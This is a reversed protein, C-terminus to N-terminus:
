VAGRLGPVTARPAAVADSCVYSLIKLAPRFPRRAPRKGARYRVERLGPGHNDPVPRLTASLQGHDSAGVTIRRAVAKVAARAAVSNPAVNVADDDYAAGLAGAPVAFAPWWEPRNGVVRLRGFPQRGSPMAM